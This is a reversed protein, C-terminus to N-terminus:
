GQKERANQEEISKVIVSYVGEIRGMTKGVIYAEPPSFDFVVKDVEKLGEVLERITEMLSDRERRDMKVGGAIKTVQSMLLENIKELKEMNIMTEGEQITNDGKRNGAFCQIFVEEESRIRCVDARKNEPSGNSKVQEMDIEQIKQNYGDGL